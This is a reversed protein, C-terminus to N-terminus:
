TTQNPQTPAETEEEDDKLCVELAELIAAIGITCWLQLKTTLLQDPFGWQAVMVNAAATLVLTSKKLKRFWKPAPHKGNKLSLTAM